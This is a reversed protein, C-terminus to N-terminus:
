LERQLWLDCRSSRHGMPEYRTFGSRHYLKLAAELVTASELVMQCYGQLRCEAIMAELLAQGIGRRRYEPDLYMKRLEVTNSDHPLCGVTGVVVGTKSVLVYFAGDAYFRSLDFLDRDTGEPDPQLGHEELLRFILTQM